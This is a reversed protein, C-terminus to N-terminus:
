VNSHHLIVDVAIIPMIHNQILTVFDSIWIGGDRKRALLYKIFFLHFIKLVQPPPTNWFRITQIVKDYFYM